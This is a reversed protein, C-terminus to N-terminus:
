GKKIVVSRCKNPKFNMRTWKILRELSRLLWRCGTVSHTTVTLDDMYAWIPPQRVGTNSVPGRCEVEASKMLMNMAPAFLMASLTCGTIIGREFRHWDSSVLGSAVRLHFKRYYDLILEHSSSPIYHRVLAEEVLKHPISGYANALDLWAVALDGKNRRADRILQSLVGIHEIYGPM